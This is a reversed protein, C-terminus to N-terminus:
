QLLCNMNKITCIVLPATNGGSCHGPSCFPYLEDKFSFGTFSYILAPADVDYFSVSNKEYNVFVAVKEPKRKTFLQVEPDASAYYSKNKLGITWFGHQPNLTITGKRNVSKKAVGLTWETKGRVVAEYYFSESFGQKGLVFLDDFRM